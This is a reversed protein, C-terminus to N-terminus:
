YYPKAIYSWSSPVKHLKTQPAVFHFEGSGLVALGLLHPM